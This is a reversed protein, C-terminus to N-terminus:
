MTFHTYLLYQLSPLCFGFYREEVGCHSPQVETTFDWLRYKCRLSYLFLKFLQHVDQKHIEGQSFATRPVSSASIQSMGSFLARYYIGQEHQQQPASVTFHRKVIKVLSFYFSFQQIILFWGWLNESTGSFLSSGFTHHQMPLPITLSDRKTTRM